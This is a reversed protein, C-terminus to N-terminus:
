ISPTLGSNRISFFEAFFKSYKYFIKSETHKRNNWSTRECSRKILKYINLRHEPFKTINILGNFNQKWIDKLFSENGINELVLETIKNFYELMKLFHLKYKEEKVEQESMM